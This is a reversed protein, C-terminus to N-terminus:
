ARDTEPTHDIGWAVREAAPTRGHAIALAHILRDLKTQHTCCPLQFPMPEIGDDRGDLPDTM